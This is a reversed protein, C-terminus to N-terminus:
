SSKKGCIQWGLIRRLLAEHQVALLAVVAEAGDFRAGYMHGYDNHTLSWATRNMARWKPAYWGLVFRVVRSEGPKLSFDVALSAGGGAPTPSPLNRGLDNWGEGVLEGGTHVEEEGMAGLAYSYTMDEWTTEVVVGSAVGDMRRREYEADRTASQQVGHANFAMEERRPGHFSFGVRGEQAVESTNTLHVEFIAGPVNSSVGDGPFFPAWARLDVSVPGDVEYALDAVPYHGWYDIQTAGGVGDVESLSLVWTKGGVTLGLFPLKLSPVTSRDRTFLAATDVGEGFNREMFANFITSYYDLTGDTCLTIFGTGLGGLPVGRPNSGDRYIIGTVQRSFGGAPFEVWEREPLDAPFVRNDM